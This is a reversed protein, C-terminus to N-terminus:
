VDKKTTPGAFHCNEPFPLSFDKHNDDHNHKTELGELKQGVKTHKSLKFSIYNKPKNM